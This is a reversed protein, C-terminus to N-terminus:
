LYGITRLTWAAQLVPQLKEELRTFWDPERWGGDPTAELPPIWDKPRWHLAAVGRGLASLRGDTVGGALLAECERLAAEHDAVLARYDPVAALAPILERLGAALAELHERRDTSTYRYEGM